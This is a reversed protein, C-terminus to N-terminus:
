ARSGNARWFTHLLEATAEPDQAMLLHGVGPLVRHEAAPFWSEVIAAGEAFRPASVGGRLHLVPATIGTVDSATFSWRVAAPLEVGFFGPAHAVADELAGPVLADLREPGDVGCISRLFGAMASAAGEADALEILPAMRPGAEDPPTLGVTAPELLALSRVDVVAQRALELAVLGGYSHGVVHPRGLGLSALLRACLRADDEVCWTPGPAERRYRLVAKDALADVLPAYWLVFPRAHPLVVPEGVGTLTYDVRVGDIEVHRMASMTTRFVRRALVGM